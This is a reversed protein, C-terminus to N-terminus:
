FLLLLFFGEFVLGNDGQLALYKAPSPPPVNSVCFFGKSSKSYVNKNKEWKATQNDSSNAQGAVLVLQPNSERQRIGYYQLLVM